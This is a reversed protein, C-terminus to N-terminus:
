KKFRIKQTISFRIIDREYYDIGTSRQQFWSMYGAEIILSKIPSYTVAAFIRNHDFTNYKINKGANMFIEDGFKLKLTGENKFKILPVELTLMYRFRWNSNYGEVLNNDKYNRFFRDEIRYRQLFNFRKFLQKTNLDIHPRLEPIKLTSTSNPDNPSQLFYAFCIALDTSPNLAVHLRERLAFQHQADPNVYRRDHFESVFTFKPSIEISANYAYWILQQHTVNKQAIVVTNNGQVLFIGIVINKLLTKM